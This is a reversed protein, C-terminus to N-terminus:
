DLRSRTPVPTVLMLSGVEGPPWRDIQDRFYEGLRLHHYASCVRLAFRGEDGTWESSPKERMSKMLGSFAANFADVDMKPGISEREAEARKKGMVLTEKEGGPYFVRTVTAAM